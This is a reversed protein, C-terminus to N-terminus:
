YNGVRDFYTIYVKAADAGAIVYFHKLNFMTENVCSQGDAVIEWGNVASGGVIKAIYKTTTVDSLGVYITSTGDAEFRVRSAYTDTTYVQVAVAATAVTVVKVIPKLAM